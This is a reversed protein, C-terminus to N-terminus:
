TSPIELRQDWTKLLEAFIKEFVMIFIDTNKIRDFELEFVSHAINPHARAGAVYYSLLISRAVKRRESDKGKSRAHNWLAEVGNFDRFLVVARSSEESEFCEKLFLFMSNSPDVGIALCYMVEMMLDENWSHKGIRHHLEFCFELVFGEESDGVVLSHPFVDKQLKEDFLAALHNLLVGRLERMVLDLCIQTQYTVSHHDLNAGCANGSDSTTESDESSAVGSYWAMDTSLLKYLYQVPAPFTEHDYRAMVEILAHILLRGTHRSNLLQIFTILNVPLLSARIKGCPANGPM